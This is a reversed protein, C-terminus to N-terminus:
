TTTYRRWIGVKTCVYTTTAGVALTVSVGAGSGSINDNPQPFLALQQAGDNTVTITLGVQALPLMISDNANTVTTIDAFAANITYAPLSSYGGGALASYQAYSTLLDAYYNIREGSILQRSSTYRSKFPLNPLPM